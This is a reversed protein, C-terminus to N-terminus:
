ALKQQTRWWRDPLQGTAAAQYDAYTCPVLLLRGKRNGAGPTPIDMWWRDSRPSKYFVVEHDDDELVVRYQLYDETTGRPHDGIRNMVGELFCWIAEAVLQGGRGDGDKSPDHEFFGVASLRDSYGAYRALQCFEEGTLGNPRSTPSAPHDATRVAGLDFSVLDADRLMPEASPLDGRLRGLRVVDFHMKEMLQITDGDTLYRQHGLQTFDFLHGGEPLLLANLWNRGDVEQPNGGFDLGADVSVVNIPREQRAYATYMPVTLVQSGGIVLPVIDRAMLEQCVVDLAARTDAEKPGAAINGLDAVPAWRDMTTLDYLKGRVWEAARDTQAGDLSGRRDLVGIIAAVCGDLDPREGARHIRLVDRLRDTGDSVDFLGAETPELWDFISEM